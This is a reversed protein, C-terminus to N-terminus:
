GTRCHMCQQQRTGRHGYFNRVHFAPTIMSEPVNTSLLEAGCSGPKFPRPLPPCKAVGEGCCLGSFTITCNPSRRLRLQQADYLHHMVRLALRKWSPQGPQQQVSSAGEQGPPLPAARTAWSCIGNRQHLHRDHDAKTREHARPHKTSASFGGTRWWQRQWRTPHPPSQTHPLAQCLGPNCAQVDMGAHCEDPPTSTRLKGCNERLKGCNERLKGCNEAIKGCSGRLKGCNEAIKRLKGAVEGCNGAIKGCNEAIPISEGGVAIGGGGWGPVQGLDQSDPKLASQVPTAGMSRLRPSPPPPPLVPGM